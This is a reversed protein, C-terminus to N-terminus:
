YLKTANNLRIKSNNFAMTAENEDKYYKFCNFNINDDIQSLVKSNKMKNLCKKYNMKIVILFIMMHLAISM